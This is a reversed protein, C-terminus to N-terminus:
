HYSFYCSHILKTKCAAAPASLPAPPSSAQKWHHNIKQYKNLLRKLADFIGLRIILEYEKGCVPMLAYLVAQLLHRGSKKPQKLVGILNGYLFETANLLDNRLRDLQHYDM